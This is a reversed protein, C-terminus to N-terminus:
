RTSALLDMRDPVGPPPAGRVPVARAPLRVGRVPHPRPAGGQQNAISSGPAASACWTEGYTPGLGHSIPTGNYPAGSYDPVFTQPTAAPASATTSSPAARVPVTALLGAAVVALAMLAAMVRNPYTWQRTM